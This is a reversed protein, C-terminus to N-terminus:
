GEDDGNEKGAELLLQERLIGEIQDLAADPVDKLYRDASVSASVVVAVPLGDRRDAIQKIAALRERWDASPDRAATLLLEALEDPDAKELLAQRLTREVHTRTSPRGRGAM